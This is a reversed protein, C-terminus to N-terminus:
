SLAHMRVSAGSTLCRDLIHGHTGTHRQAHRHRQTHRYSDRHIETHAQTDKFTERCTQTDSHSQIHTHTHAYTHTTDRRLSDSHLSVYAKLKYSIVLQFIYLLHLTYIPLSHCHCLLPSVICLFPCVTCYSAYLFLVPYYLTMVM